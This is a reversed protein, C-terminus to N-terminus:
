QADIVVLLAGKEVTDGEQCHLARVVGQSPSKLENQMKMSELVILTDGSRVEQDINVPINVILGPMPSKVEGSAVQSAGKRQDMLLSREDFVETSYLKGNLQIDIKPGSEEGIIALYSRHNTIISYVSPSLNHFDVTREEGNVKLLGDKFIEIEYKQGNVMTSYKTIRIM